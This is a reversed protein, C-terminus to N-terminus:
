SIGNEKQSDREGAEDNMRHEHNMQTAVRERVREAIRNEEKLAEVVSRLEEANAFDELSRFDAVAVAAREVRRAELSDEYTKWLTAYAEWVSELVESRKREVAKLRNADSSRLAEALEAELAVADGLQRSVLDCIQDVLADINSVRSSGWDDGSEIRADIYKKLVLFRGLAVGHAPFGSKRYQQIQQAFKRDQARNGRSVMQAMVDIEIEREKWEWVGFLGGVTSAGVAFFAMLNAGYFAGLGLAFAAGVGLVLLTEWRWWRRWRVRKRLEGADMPFTPELHL